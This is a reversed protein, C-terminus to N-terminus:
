PRTELRALDMEGVLKVGFIELTNLLMREEVEIARFLEDYAVESLTMEYNGFSCKVPGKWTEYGRLFTRLEKLRDRYEIAEELQNSNMTDKGKRNGRARLALRGRGTAGGLRIRLLLNHEADTIKAAADMM